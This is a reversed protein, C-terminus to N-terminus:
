LLFLLYDSVKSIHVVDKYDIIVSFHVSTIQVSKLSLFESAVSFSDFLKKLQRSREICLLFFYLKRCASVRNFYNDYHRAPGAMWVHM